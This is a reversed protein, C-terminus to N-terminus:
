IFVKYSNNERLNHFFQSYSFHGFPAAEGRERHTGSERLSSLPRLGKLSFGAFFVAARCDACNPFTLAAPFTLIPRKQQYNQYRDQISLAFIGKALCDSFLLKMLMVRNTKLVQAARGLDQCFWIMKCCTNRRGLSLYNRRLTLSSSTSPDVLGSSEGHPSACQAGM